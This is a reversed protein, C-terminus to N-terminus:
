RADRELILCNCPSVLSLSASLLVFIFTSVRRHCRLLPAESAACRRNRVSFRTCRGVAGQPRLPETTPSQTQERGDRM